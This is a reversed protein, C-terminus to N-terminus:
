VGLILRALPNLAWYLFTRVPGLLFGVAGTLMLLFLIPMTYPHYRIRDYKPLWPGPLVGRLVGAGDLPGLPLINFAALLVNMFVLSGGLGLLLVQGLPLGLRVLTEPGHFAAQLLKWREAVEPVSLRISICMVGLFLFSLIVNSAPGALSVLAGSTKMRIKRTFYLPNFPVPKAWGIFFGGFILGLLPFVVTGLPDMHVLPNLSMRGQSSATDDGLLHAASAHSAEHVSLSFLLAVYSVLITPISISDFM